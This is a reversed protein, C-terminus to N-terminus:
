CKLAEQLHLAPCCGHHKYPFVRSHQIKCWGKHHLAKNIQLHVMSGAATSHITM